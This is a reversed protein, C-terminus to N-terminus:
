RGKKIGSVLLALILYGVILMLPLRIYQVYFSRHDTKWTPNNLLVVPHDYNLQDAEMMELDNMMKNKQVLLQELNAHGPQQTSISFALNAEYVLEKQEGIRQFLSDLQGINLKYEAIKFALSQQYVSKVDQLKALDNLYGLINTVTSSDVGQNARVTIKHQKYNPTLIESTLFEGKDKVAQKLLDAIVTNQESSGEYEQRLRKLDVIPEIKIQKLISQNKHTLGYPQLFTLDSNEIEGNLQDVSSYVLPVGSFNIQVILDTEQTTKNQNNLYYSGGIGIALL